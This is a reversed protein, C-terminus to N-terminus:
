QLSHGGDLVLNQGTIWRSADSLLFVAARAVDEPRGQGLPYSSSREDLDSYIARTMATPITAPSIANVRIGQHSFECAFARMLSLIAGKSAAYASIGTNDRLAGTSSILVVSAGCGINNRRDLFARTLQYAAHVNTEFLVRMSETDQMRVPKVSVIGACYLLGRIRGYQDKLKKMWANLSDVQEVLDKPENHFADPFAAKERLALLKERDRGSAIVTAGLENLLLASAAGLGSSAGTVLFADAPSFSIM